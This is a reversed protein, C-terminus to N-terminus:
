TNKVQTQQITQAHERPIESLKRLIIIKANQPSLECMKMEKPDTVPCKSHEKPETM